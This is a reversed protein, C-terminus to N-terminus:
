FGEKVTAIDTKVSSVAEEPVPPIGRQVQKKGVLALVGAVGFLGAGVGVRKGKQQVEAVALRMEDRVLRSLQESADSILQAASRDQSLRGGPDSAM